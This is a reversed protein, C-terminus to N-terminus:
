DNNMKQIFKEIEDTANTESTSFKCKISFYDLNGIEASTVM